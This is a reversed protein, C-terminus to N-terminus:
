VEPVQLYGLLDLPERELFFGLCEISYFLLKQSVQAYVSVLGLVELYGQSSGEQEFFSFM